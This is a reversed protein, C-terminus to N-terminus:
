AVKTATHKSTRGFSEVPLGNLLQASPDDIGALLMTTVSCETQTSDASSEVAQDDLFPIIEPVMDVGSRAASEREMGVTKGGLKMIRHKLQYKTRKLRSVLTNDPLPRNKEQSIEKDCGAHKQRLEAIHNEISM